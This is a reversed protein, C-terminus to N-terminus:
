CLISKLTFMFMIHTDHIRVYTYLLSTSVPYKGSDIEIKDKSVPDRVSGGSPQPANPILYGM